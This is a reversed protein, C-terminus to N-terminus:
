KRVRVEATLSAALVLLVCVVLVPAAAVAAAGGIAKTLILALVITAIVGILLTKDGVFFDYIFDWASKLAKV